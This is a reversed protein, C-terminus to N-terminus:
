PFNEFDKKPLPVKWVVKVDISSITELRSVEAILSIKMVGLTECRKFDSTLLDSLNFVTLLVQNAFRSRQFHNLSKSSYKVGKESHKNFMQASLSRNM